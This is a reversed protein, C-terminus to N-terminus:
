AASPGYDTQTTQYVGSSSYTRVGFGMDDFPGSLCTGESWAVGQVYLEINSYGTMTRKTSYTVWSGNCDVSGTPRRAVHFM